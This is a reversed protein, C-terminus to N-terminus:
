AEPPLLCFDLINVLSGVLMEAYFYRCDPKPAEKFNDTMDVLVTM